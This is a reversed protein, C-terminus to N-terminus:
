IALQLLFSALFLSLFVELQESELVVIEFFCDVLIKVADGGRGLAPRRPLGTPVTRSAEPMGQFPSAPPRGGTRSLRMRVYSVFISSLYASTPDPPSCSRYALPSPLSLVQM